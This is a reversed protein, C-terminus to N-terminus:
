RDAVVDPELRRRAYVAFYTLLVAYVGVVGLIVWPNVLFVAVAAAVSLALALGSTAVGGPTRYPRELEPERVRLVIHSVMTLAYSTTAGIVAILMLMAGQDTLSLAFGIVGPVILAWIPVGRRSTRGLFRPLYGSRGLAFTLRSYSYIIAFFSALLGALGTINIIWYVANKGGYAVPSEIASLLPDEVNAIVSSGGGGPALVSTSIAFLVLVGMAGLLGRPLAREPERTEESALAVGEIALFFWLAFPLASWIGKPGFPLFKSAGFAGTPAIDLLNDVSFKPIMAIAFIVLALVAVSAIIFMVKLAEGAGYLHIGVFILYCALFIPWGGTGTLSSVYAAIFNAIAAPAIAYEILMAIGTTFGGWVGLARRAFEFGGGAVPMATAMEALSAVIAFYMVAMVLMGILLGGWGGERLAFNWGAFEGSIVSSVGLVM